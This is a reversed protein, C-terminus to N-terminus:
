FLTKLVDLSRLEPFNPVHLRYYVLILEACRNREAQSMRFFRMNEYTM